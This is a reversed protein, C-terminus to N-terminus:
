PHQLIEATTPRAAPEYQLIWRILEKVKVGEDTDLEPEAKDFAEEMTPRPLMLPDGDEPVGGLMCNFLTGDPKFYCSYTKWAKTYTDPLAGLRATLRMIHDDDEWESGLVCFLPQGTILEFVLCGFSWVDLSAGKEGAFILEPARLGLPTIIKSPKDSLFYAAGGMDSLKIKFGNEYPTFPALPQPNCLYPPAWLDKKGDLREVPRSILRAEVDQEQQLTTEPVSDIDGLGFLMNGPQFDGHAVGISHLYALAQLAQKLIGRAMKPPYRVKMDFMRPNFQPLEEVMTDVSPGMPEFIFCKHTGNPGKHEFEALLRTIRREGEPSAQTAVYDLIREENTPGSIESVLIKLAVYIGQQVDQALWVTSYSGEGLKRVVKYQGDHFLDGLTVPHYGGPRYDEIWECPLSIAKFRPENDLVGTPPPTPPPSPSFSM